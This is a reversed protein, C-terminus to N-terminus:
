LVWSVELLSCASAMSRIDWLRNSLTGDRWAPKRLCVQKQGNESPESSYSSGWQPFLPKSLRSPGCSDGAVISEWSTNNYCQVSMKRRPRLCPLKGKCRQGREQSSGLGGMQLNLLFHRSEIALQKIPQQEQEKLRIQMLSLGAIKPM